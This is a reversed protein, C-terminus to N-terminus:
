ACITFLYTVKLLDYSKSNFHKYFKLYFDIIYILNYSLCLSKIQNGSLYSAKQSKQYASM